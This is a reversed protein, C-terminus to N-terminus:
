LLELNPLFKAALGDVEALMQDRERNILDVIEVKLTERNVDGDTNLLVNWAIDSRGDGDWQPWLAPPFTIQSAVEESTRHGIPSDVVHAAESSDYEDYLVKLETIYAEFAKDLEARSVPEVIQKNFEDIAAGEGIPKVLKALFGVPGDRWDLYSDVHDECADYYANIKEKLPELKAKIKEDAKQKFTKNFENANEISETVAVVEGGSHESALVVWDTLEDLREDIITYTGTGRIEEVKGEAWVFLLTFAFWIGLAIVFYRPLLPSDRQDQGTDPLLQFESKMEERTLLCCSLQSAISFFVPASLVLNIVFAIAYSGSQILGLGYRWLCDSYSLLKDAEALLACESGAFAMSRNEIMAAVSLGSGSDTTSAMFAYALCLFVTVIIASWKLASAKYFRPALEKKHIHRVALFVLYYAPIAAWMLLWEKGDWGPAQLVFLIGSALYFAFFGAFWLYWKRNYHSLKGGANLKFQRHARKTVISFMTGLTAPVAYLLVIFPFACSPFDAAKTGFLTLLALLLVAYTLYQSFGKFYLHLKVKVDNTASTEAADSTSVSSGKDRELPKEEDGAM